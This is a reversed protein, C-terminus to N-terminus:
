RSFYILNCEGQKNVGSYVEYICSLGEQILINECQKKLKLSHTEILIKNVIPITKKIAGKLILVEAGEADIKLIDIKKINESSIIEDLTISEIETYDSYFELSGSEMITSGESSEGIRLKILGKEDSIAINNSNVNILDNIDINKKLRKFTDPNPEFCYVKGKNGCKKAAHITFFGIHSGVDFVIDGEKPIFSNVKEYIKEHFIEPYPSLESKRPSFYFDLEKMKLYIDGSFKISPIFRSLFNNLIYFYIKIKYKYGNANKILIGFISFITLLKKLKKM